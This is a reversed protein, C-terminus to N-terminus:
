GEEAIERLAREVYVKVMRRRYWESAIADTFPECEQAAAEAAASITAGDLRSGTLFGETRKARIPYPGVANLAIAAAQVLDGALQLHAAVTVVSPTNAKKRGVKIFVTRGQPLPVQVEALLEGPQLVNTMFGTYFDSVPVLREGGQRVLKVKADLALLATAFDGAPPPVFFNGGVTALNRITWAATHRAADRLLPIPANEIMESLTATAGIVVQGNKQDLYDLGAQRLGMVEEPASVGENILPMVVTGGGMVLLADARKALISLAEDLSQPQYYNTVSM